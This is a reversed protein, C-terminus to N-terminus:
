GVIRPSGVLPLNEKPIQTVLPADFGKKHAKELVEELTKGHAVVTTSTAGKLAVWQGKYKRYINIMNIPKMLAKIRVLVFASTM